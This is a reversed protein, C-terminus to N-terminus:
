IVMEKWVQNLTKGKRATPEKLKWYCDWCVLKTHVYAPREVLGNCNSCKLTHKMNKRM